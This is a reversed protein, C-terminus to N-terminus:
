PFYGETTSSKLGAEFPAYIERVDEWYDVLPQVEKNALRTDRRHERLAAVLSNWSPQSTLGSMSALAVDVIHVGCEIASILAAIGNGSTDHMHLHIPVRVTRLLRDILLSAARPRLLGAMDKICFFHAGMDEARKALDAYYDLSYKTRKPNAVDGTYCIALEAVKGTKRVRDISVKMSDLDNLSDFIRFVDVGAEAAEDIFAEVVNDPYSTYGVANAGRLLMQQLINPVAQKIQRLRQWPDENLFRYATDFTAGGWSELSFLEPALRATAPAVALIDHTRMRTALLSQHADRWTTDTLLPRGQQLVWRALGEPGRQQLIQVTGPPAPAPSPAPVRPARLGSPKLRQDKKITPHGNVIVEALYRIVKFLLSDYFPSVRAGTYCNGADLRIGFGTGARWTNIRGADPLFNNSPDETTVRCQVAFGRPLVMEQSRIGVEPSRLEYGECIRLQAQVLDIGTVQETVTHEVQLRANVEIFYHRPGDVLFEVTGASSYRSAEALKLADACIRERLEGDINPAPAIEIVKQHRRQVSCDREFLHIVNGHQDGLIQVEIHRVKPLWKEVFVAERGFALKSESRARELAEELEGPETVVRMGRGGGGHAAKVLTAGHESMFARAAGIQEEASGRLEVGPVVPVRAKLALGKAAVKDGMLAVVESRPGIFRVGRQECARAFEPNESLFGYGPHIADAGCQRAVDLIEEIGLYADVPRKGRGVLYAEDAKHRHESVRDEESYIGVTRIGLENCARFIRIAIEGRNACLVKRLPVIAMRTM